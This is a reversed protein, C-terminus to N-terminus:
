ARPPARSSFCTVLPADWSIFAAWLALVQASSVLPTAFPLIHLTDGVTAADFAACSHGPGADSDGTDAISSAHIQLHQLNAHFIRHKVGTWQAFLLAMALLLAIVIRSSAPRAAQM